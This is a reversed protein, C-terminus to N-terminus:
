FVVIPNVPSGTGNHIRLPNISLFFEWRNQEACMDALEELNANDLLWLGMRVIGIHHMPLGLDPYERPWPDNPTDSGLLAIGRQHLWPLLAAQPGPNGDGTPGLTLRRKYNGTRILLIDGEEVRVGAAQEAAEVDEPMVGQGPEMWNAGKLRAIDLLVGRGVVGKYLLEINGAKAGERTTVLSAPRGNYMKADWFMHCIGDVHTITSGHFAFGVFDSSGGPGPGTVDEGSGLMFHLPPIRVDPAPEPLIPRACSVTRGERVLSAARATKEPTLLNLTGLQDDPGWRGWNSVKEIYSRVEEETPIPTM